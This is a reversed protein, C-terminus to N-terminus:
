KSSSHVLVLDFPCASSNSRSSHPANSHVFPLWSPLISPMLFPHIFSHIYRTGPKWPPTLPLSGGQWHQLHLLRPPNLRQTPFIWQLLFHSGVETNKSPYEMSLPTQCAVTWLTGSDSLVWTVAYMCVKYWSYHHPRDESTQHLVSILFTCLYTTPLDYLDKLPLNLLKANLSVKGQFPLSFSLSILLLFSLSIPILLSVCEPKIKKRTITVPM